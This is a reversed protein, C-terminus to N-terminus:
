KRMDKIWREVEKGAVDRAGLGFALAAAVAITGLVIGFTLNVIEEAIGTQRLSLAGAFVVIAIRAAPALTQAQKGATDRIVREALRGLYLGLAFIVVALLVGSAAVLFQSVLEALISFGLLNAAEILAFLMVGVTTLYGVVQSPTQGDDTGGEGLGIWFLIRNFGIGTLINTVFNGLVRAVFYAIGILLFAGFIAPLATLITTLMAAAPESIADIQLTNLAGIVVPILILVYAITAVVESLKQGGLATEIGFQDGLRDLGIGALLNAVIQRLIRAVLWGVVLILGAGFLAPLVGLIEDVVGQVPGLMGELGLIGLAAPLFILLVLWYSVNGLTASISTQPMEAQASIREDLKAVELARVIVFRVATGVLWAALLLAAAAVLQPVFALVQDLLVRIPEAVVTLNLAQLVGLLVFLLILYYVIRSIWLTVRIRDSEEEGVLKAINRDAGIGRLVRRTVASGILALLWGVILIGLAGLAGPLYGSLSEIFEQIAQEM